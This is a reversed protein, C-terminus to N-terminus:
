LGEWVLNFVESHISEITRLGGDAAVCQIRQWRSRYQQACLDLFVDRCTSLYMADSEHLDAKLETYDRVGKKAVLAASTEVPVDLFLTLDAPQMQNLTYEQNALWEIFPQRRAEPVRAGQYALNSAVYRDVVVIKHHTCREALLAKSQFRDEAYLLAVHKSPLLDRPGFKGNLYMSIVESVKSKGYRPFSVWSAEIGRHQLAAVLRLTQTRKGAGDIGEIAILMSNCLDAISVGLM